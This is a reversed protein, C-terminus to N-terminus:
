LEKKGDDEFDGEPGDEGEEGMDTMDGMDGMDEGQEGEDAPATVKLVGGKHVFVMKMAKFGATEVAATKSKKDKELNDYKTQLKEVEAEFEAEIKTLQEEQEDYQKQLDEKSIAMFKEIEVKDEATCHELAGPTCSPKLAAAFKQLDEAEREGDYDELADPSGHKLTPFGEVNHTECLTRGTGDCDVDAVLITKHDAFEKMLGDWAPKMAKCHGCWPAFFKVFVTKGATEKAWTEHTLEISACAGVLCFLALLKM